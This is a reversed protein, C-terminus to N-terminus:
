NHIWEHVCHMQKYLFKIMPPDLEGISANYLSISREQTAPPLHGQSMQTSTGSFNITPM